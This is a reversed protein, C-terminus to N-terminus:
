IRKVWQSIGGDKFHCQWSGKALRRCLRRSGIRRKCGGQAMPGGKEAVFLDLSTPESIIMAGANDLEGSDVMRRAGLGSSNEAATFALVLDGQLRLEKRKLEIAATIMSAMGSKMDTAGRGYVRGDQILGEFPPVTWQEKNVPITDFHASYVLSPRRGTGRLRAILNARGQGLDFIEFDINEKKLVKAVYQAAEMENGPPDVTQIQILHQLLDITDPYKPKKRIEKIHNTNPM